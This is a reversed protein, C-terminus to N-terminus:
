YFIFDIFLNVLWWGLVLDRDELEKRNTGLGGLLGAPQPWGQRLLQRGGPLGLSWVMGQLHGRRPIQVELKAKEQVPGWVGPAAVLASLHLPWPPRSVRSM